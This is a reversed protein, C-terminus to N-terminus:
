YYIVTRFNLRRDPRSPSGDERRIEIRINGVSYTCTLTEGSKAWKGDVYKDPYLTDELPVQVEVGNDDYKWYTIYFGRNFIHEDIEPMPIDAYLHSPRGEVLYESWGDPDVYIKNIVMIRGGELDADIDCGTTTAMALVSAALITFLKRM